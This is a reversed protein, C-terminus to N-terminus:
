ISRLLNPGYLIKHHRVPGYVSMHGETGHVIQQIYTYKKDRKMWQCWWLLVNFSFLFFRILPWPVSLVFWITYRQSSANEHCIIKWWVVVPACHSFWVSKSYASHEKCFTYICSCNTYFVRIFLDYSYCV